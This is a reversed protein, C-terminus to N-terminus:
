PLAAFAALAEAVRPHSAVPALQQRLRWLDSRRVWDLGDPGQLGRPLRVRLLTGDLQGDLAALFVVLESYRHRRGEAHLIEALAQLAARRSERRPAGTADAPLGATVLLACLAGEIGAVPEPALVEHFRALDARVLDALGTPDGKWVWLWDAAQEVVGGLWGRAGRHGLLLGRRLATAADASPLGAEVLRLELDEVALLLPANSPARRIRALGPVDAAYPVLAQLADRVPALAAAGVRLPAVSLEAPLEDLFFSPGLRAWREVERPPIVRARAFRDRLTPLFGPHAGFRDARWTAEAWAALRPLPVAELARWLAHLRLARQTRAPDTPPLLEPTSM